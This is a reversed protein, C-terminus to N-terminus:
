SNKEVYDVANNYGNIKSFWRETIYLLGDFESREAPTEKHRLIAAHIQEMRKLADGLLEQGIESEMAAKFEAHKAFHSLVRKINKMRTPNDTGSDM